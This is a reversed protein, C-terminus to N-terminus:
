SNCIYIYPKERELRQRKNVLLKLNSLVKKLDGCKRYKEYTEQTVGDISVSLLDLGSLLLSEADKETLMINLNTDFRVFPIHKAKKCYKIMEALHRNLLPEGWNMFNVSYAYGGVEDIIKKFLKFSLTAKVRSTDKIGTPCLPCHLMCINCPDILIDYPYGIVKITRLAFQGRILFYNILRKFNYRLSCLM